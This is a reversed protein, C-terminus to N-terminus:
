SPPNTMQESAAAIKLLQIAIASLVIVGAFVFVWVLTSHEEAWPKRPLVERYAPNRTGGTVAVSVIREVDPIQSIRALDYSPASVAGGVYLAVNRGTISKTPVVISREIGFARAATVNLPKDDGNQITLRLRRIPQSAFTATAVHGPTVGELHFLQLSMLPTTQTDSLVSLDAARHYEDAGAVDFEVKELPVPGPLTAEVESIKLDFRVSTNVQV